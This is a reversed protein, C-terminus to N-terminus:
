GRHYHNHHSDDHHTPDSHHTTVNTGIDADCGCPISRLSLSPQYSQPFRAMSYWQSRQTHPLFPPPHPKSCENGSISITQHHLTVLSCPTATYMTLPLVNSSSGHQHRISNSICSFPPFICSHALLAQKDTFYGHSAASRQGGAIYLRAVTCM